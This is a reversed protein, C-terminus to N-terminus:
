REEGEQVQAEVKLLHKRADAGRAGSWRQAIKQAESLEYRSRELHLNSLAVSLNVVSPSEMAKSLDAGRIFEPPVDIEPMLEGDNEKMLRERRKNSKVVQQTVTLGIQLQLDDESSGTPSDEVQGVLLIRLNDAIGPIIRDTIAKLLAKAPNAEASCPIAAFPYSPFLSDLLQLQSLLTL